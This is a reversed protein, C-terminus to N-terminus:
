NPNRPSNRRRWRTMLTILSRPSSRMWTMKRMAEEEEEAGAAAAAAEGRM